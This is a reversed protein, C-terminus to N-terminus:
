TLVKVTAAKANVQVRHVARECNWRRAYGESGDATIKGSVLLRWRWLKQADQYVEFRTAM